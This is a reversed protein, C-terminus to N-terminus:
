GTSYPQDDARGFVFCSNPSCRLSPLDWSFIKVAKQAGKHSVIYFISIEEGVGIINASFTVGFDPFLKTV